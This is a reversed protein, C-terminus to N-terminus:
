IDCREELLVRLLLAHESIQIRGYKM